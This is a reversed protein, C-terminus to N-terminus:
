PPCFKCWTVSPRYERMGDHPDTMRAPHTHGVICEPPVDRILMFSLDIPASWEHGNCALRTWEMLMARALQDRDDSHTMATPLDIEIFTPVGLGRLIRRGREDFLSMIWESGHILYHASDRLMAEDSLIVYAKGHDLENGVEAIARDLESRFYHLEQHAEIITLVRAKLRERNHTLLGERFYSGADETRCGHYTRVKADLLGIGLSFILDDISGKICRDLVTLWDSHDWCIDRFQGPRLRRMADARFDPGLWATLAPMWSEPQKWVITRDQWVSNDGQPLGQAAALLTNASKRQSDM